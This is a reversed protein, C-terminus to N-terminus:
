EKIQAVSDPVKPSAAIKALEQARRRTKLQGIVVPVAVLAVSGLMTATDQGIFGKGVAWASIAVVATRVGAWLQDKTPTKNVKVTM